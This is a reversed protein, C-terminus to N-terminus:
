LVSSFALIMTLSKPRDLVNSCPTIDVAQPVGPYTPLNSLLPICMMSIRCIYRVTHLIDKILQGEKCHKGSM